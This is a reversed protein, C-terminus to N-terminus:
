GRGVDCIDEIGGLVGVAGLMDPESPEGAEVVADDLDAVAGVVEAGCAVTPVRPESEVIAATAGLKAELEVDREVWEHM